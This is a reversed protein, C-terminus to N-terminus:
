RWKFSKRLAMVFCLFKKLGRFTLGIRVTKSRDIEIDPQLLFVGSAARVTGGEGSDDAGLTSCCRGGVEASTVSATFRTKLSAAASSEDDLGLKRVPSKLPSPAASM